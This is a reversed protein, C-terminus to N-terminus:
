EESMTKDILIYRYGKALLIEDKCLQELIPFIFKRLSFRDVEADSFEAHIINVANGEDHSLRWFLHDVFWSPDFQKSSGADWGIIEDTVTHTLHCGIGHLRYAWEDNEGWLGRGSKDSRYAFRQEPTLRSPTMIDPRLELMAMVVIYQRDVFDTVLQHVADLLMKGM